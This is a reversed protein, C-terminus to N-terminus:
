DDESKCLLTCAITWGWVWFFAALSGLANDCYSLYSQRFLNSLYLHAERESFRGFAWASSSIFGQGYFICLICQFWRTEIHVSDCVPQHDCVQAQCLLGNQQPLWVESPVSSAEGVNVFAQNSFDMVLSSLRSSILFFGDVFSLM